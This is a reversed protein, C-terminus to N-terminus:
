LSVTGMIKIGGWGWGEIWFGVSGYVDLKEM